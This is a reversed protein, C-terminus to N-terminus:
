LASRYIAIIEELNAERPNTLGCVDKMANEALVQLDEEKAGLESLGTPIGITAALDKIADIAAEAAEDTHMTSVDVGMADAILVFREPVVDKNFAEVHPLLVANCVGHPLNYFGGLQHAMAHVYGLSANNFAIGALYEAYAMMERAEMDTGNEVARPLYGAILEIAKLAAADTVPTAITSVFAEVAHTLADMGTAATLSAPMSVMLEPDNIAV